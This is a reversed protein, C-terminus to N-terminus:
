ASCRRGAYRRAVGCRTCRHYEDDGFVHGGISQALQGAAWALKQNVKDEVEARLQERSPTQARFEEYLDFLYDAAVDLLADYRADPATM